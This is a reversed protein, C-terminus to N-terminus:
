GLHAANFTSTGWVKELYPKVTSDFVTKKFATRDSNVVQMGHAKLFTLGAKQAADVEPGSAKHVDAMAASLAQQQSKSLSNWAATNIFVYFPAYVHNTVDIYKQVEYFKASQILDVPNEQASVTGSQLAQFVEAFALSTVNAGLGKFPLISAEQQAVRIKLGNMDSPTRIPVNSTVERPGRTLWGVLHAHQSTEYSQFFKDLKHGDLVSALQAQSDFAYPMYLADLANSGTSGDLAMQLTGNAIARMADVEGGLQGNPYIKIQVSGATKKSVEDALQQLLKNEVDDTPLTDALKLVVHKGGGGTVASASHTCGTLSIGALAVLAVTTILSKKTRSGLKM